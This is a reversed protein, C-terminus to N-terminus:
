YYEGYTFSPSWNVPARRTIQLKFLKAINKLVYWPAADFFRRQSEITLFGKLRLPLAPDRRIIPLM